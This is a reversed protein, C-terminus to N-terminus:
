LIVPFGIMSPSKAKETGVGSIGSGHPGWPDPMERTPVSFCNDSLIVPRDTIRHVMDVIDKFAPLYRYTQSDKEYFGYYQFMLVDVWKKAVDLAAYRAHTNGNYKDGLVLHNPDYKKITEYMTRYYEELLEKLFYEDDIAAEFRDVPNLLEEGLDLVDDFNRCSTGYVRNFEGIEGIYKKRVVEAFAKKGDTNSNSIMLTEQWTLAGPHDDGFQDILTEEAHFKSHIPLDTYYYGLVWPDNKIKEVDVQNRFNSDVKNKWDDSFVDPHERRNVPTYHSPVGSVSALNIMYATNQPKNELSSFHGYTNFGLTNYDDEVMKNFSKIFESDSPIRRGQINGPDGFEQINKERNYDTLLVSPSIHNLAFTIFVCGEPDVLWWRGDIEETHFFGTKKGHLGKYGGYKSLEQTNATSIFFPILLCFLLIKMKFVM